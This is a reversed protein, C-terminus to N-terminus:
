SAKYVYISFDAESYLMEFQMATVIYSLLSGRHKKDSWTTLLDLFVIMIIKVYQLLLLKLIIYTCVWESEKSM